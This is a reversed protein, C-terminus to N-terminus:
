EGKRNEGSTIKASVMDLVQQKLDEAVEAYVALWEFLENAEDDAVRKAVYEVAFGIDLSFCGGAISPNGGVDTTPCGSVYCEDVVMLAVKGNSWLYPSM